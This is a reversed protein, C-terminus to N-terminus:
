VVVVRPVVGKHEITAGSASESSNNKNCAICCGACTLAVAGCGCALALIGWLPSTVVWWPWQAVPDVKVLKLILFVQVVAAATVLRTITM